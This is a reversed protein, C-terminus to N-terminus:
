TRHSSNLRTSKRDRLPGFNAAHTDWATTLPDGNAVSPWNMQVFRTGKKARILNRATICANGFGSNGYRIRENNDFTFIRNVDANYMLRRASDNWKAVEAAVSGTAGADRVEKDMDVLMNYRREFIAQTDFHSTNGLGGGVVLIANDNGAM